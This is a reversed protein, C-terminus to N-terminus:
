QQNSLHSNGFFPNPAAGGGNGSSGVGAASAASAVKAVTGANNAAWSAAGAVQGPTVNVTLTPEVTHRGGAANNAELDSGEKTEACKFGFILEVAGVFICAFGATHSFFVDFAPGETIMVNTGVFIFFCGRLFWHRLFGFNKAIFKLWNLQLFIMMCGFLTNWICRVGLLPNFAVAFINLMTLVSTAIILGGCTLALMKKLKNLGDFTCFLDKAKDKLGM